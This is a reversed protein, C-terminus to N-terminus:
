VYVPQKSERWNEPKTKPKYNELEVCEEGAVSEAWEKAHCDCDCQSGEFKPESHFFFWKENKDMAIWGIVQKLENNPM